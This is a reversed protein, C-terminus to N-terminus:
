DDAIKRRQRVAKHKSHQTLRLIGAWIKNGLADKKLQSDSLQTIASTGLAFGLQILILLLPLWMSDPDM